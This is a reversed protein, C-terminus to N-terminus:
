SFKELCFKLKFKVRVKKPSWKELTSIQCNKVSITVKERSSYSSESANSQRRKSTHTELQMLPIPGSQKSMKAHVPTTKTILPAKYHQRPPVKIQAPGYLGAKIAPEKLELMEENLHGNIFSLNNWLYQRMGENSLRGDSSLQANIPKGEIWIRHFIYNGDVTYFKNVVFRNDNISMQQFHENQHAWNGLMDLRPAAMLVMIQPEMGNKALVTLVKQLIRELKASGGYEVPVYILILKVCKLVEIQNWDISANICQLNGTIITYETDTVLWIPKDLKM